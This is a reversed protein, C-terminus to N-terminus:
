NYYTDDSEVKYLPTGLRQVKRVPSLPLCLNYCQKRSRYRLGTKKNDNNCM